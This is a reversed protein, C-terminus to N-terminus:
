KKKRRNKKEEFGSRHRRQNLEKLVLNFNIRKSELLVLFHYLLDASEHVIKKKNKLKAANFLEKAEELIKNFLYKKNSLLFSTYSKRTNKKKNIKIQSILNKLVKFM